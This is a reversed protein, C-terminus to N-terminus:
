STGASSQMLLLHANQVLSEMRQRGIGDNAPNRTSQRAVVHPRESPISASETLSGASVGMPWARPALLATM